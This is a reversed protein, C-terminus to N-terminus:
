VHARGIQKMSQPQELIAEKILALLAPYDLLQERELINEYEQLITALDSIRTIDHIGHMEKPNQSQVELLLAESSIGDKRLGYLVEACKDITQRSLTNSLGRYFPLNVHLMAEEFLMDRYPDSILQFEGRPILDIFLQKAFQELTYIPLEPVPKQHRSFVDRTLMRHLM